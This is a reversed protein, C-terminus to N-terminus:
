LKAALAQFAAALNDYSEKLQLPNGGQPLVPMNRQQELQLAQNADIETRKAEITKMVDEINNVGMAILANQLVEPIKMEPFVGALQTLYTGLKQLDSELIPPLDIDIVAPEDEPKEDLVIAFIDRWADKWLEQYGTFSKLMPLEMATGIALNGTSPDGYYHLATNTGACVMLKLNDSDVKADGAGTARPMPAMDVGENQFWTSAPAPSPNREAGGSLGSAVMSSEIRTKLKNLTAQGGKVTSKWAFKALAQVIAVRATMMRRHERSWDVSTNLLGNGHKYIGDFPIHYVVVNEEVTIPKKSNPETLSAIDEESAEWDAYYYTKPAGGGVPNVVRKYALIKEDDDPDSMIQDIQMPDIYRIEKDQGEAGFIAFFIDGDILLKKSSRQQGQTGTMRANQRCFKTLKAMVTKDKCNFSIGTGVGYDTWLRVAQHALPDHQWYFRSKSIISTRSSQDLETVNRYSGGFREYGQDDIALEIDARSFGEQIEPISMLFDVIRGAEHVPSEPPKKPTSKKAM